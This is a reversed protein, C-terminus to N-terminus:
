RTARRRPRAVVATPEPSSFPTAFRPLAPEPEPEPEAAADEASTEAEDEADEPVASDESVAPVETAEGDPRTGSDARGADALAEDTTDTSTSEHDAM